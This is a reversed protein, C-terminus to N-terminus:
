VGFGVYELRGVVRWFDHVRLRFTRFKSFGLTSPSCGAVGIHQLQQPIPHIFDHM